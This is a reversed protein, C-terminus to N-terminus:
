KARLYLEWFGDGESFKGVGGGINATKENMVERGGEWDGRQQRM